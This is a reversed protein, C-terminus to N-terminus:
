LYEKAYELFPYEKYGKYLTKLLEDKQEKNQVEFFLNKWISWIGIDDKINKLISILRRFSKEDKVKELGAFIDSKDFLWFKVDDIKGLEVYNWRVYIDESAGNIATITETIDLIDDELRYYIISSPRFM